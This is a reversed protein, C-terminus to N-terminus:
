LLSNQYGTFRENGFHIAHGYTIGGKGWTVTSMGILNSGSLNVALNLQGVQTIQDEYWRHMCGSKKYKTWVGWYIVISNVM